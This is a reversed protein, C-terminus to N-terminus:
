LLAAVAIAASDPCVTAAFFRAFSHLSARTESKAIGTCRPPPFSEIKKPMVERSSKDLVLKETAPPTAFLGKQTNVSLPGATVKFETDNLQNEGLIGHPFYKNAPGLVGKKDKQNTSSHETPLSLSRTQLIGKKTIVVKTGNSPKVSIFNACGKNPLDSEEDSSSETSDTESSVEIDSDDSDEEDSETDSKQPIKTRPWSTAELMMRSRLNGVQFHEGLFIRRKSYPEMRARAVLLRNTDTMNIIWMRRTKKDMELEFHWGEVSPHPTVVDCHSDSGVKISIWESYQDWKAGRVLWERKVCVENIYTSLFIDM